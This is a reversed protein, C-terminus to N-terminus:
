AARLWGLGVRPSHMDRSPFLGAVPKGPPGLYCTLAHFYRIDGTVVKWRAADTKITAVDVRCAAPPHAAGRMPRHRPM